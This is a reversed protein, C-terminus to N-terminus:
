GNTGEDDPLVKAVTARVPEGCYNDPLEFNAEVHLSCYGPLMFPLPDAVRVFADQRRGDEYQYAGPIRVYGEPPAGDRPAPYTGHREAEQITPHSGDLARVTDRRILRGIASFLPLLM